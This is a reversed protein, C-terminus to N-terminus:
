DFLQLMIRNTESSDSLKFTNKLALVYFPSERFNKQIESGKVLNKDLNTHKPAVELYFNRKQIEVFLHTYNSFYLNWTFNRKM